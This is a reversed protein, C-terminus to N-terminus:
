GALGSQFKAAADAVDINMVSAFDASRKTLKEIVSSVKGGKGAIKTAFSSFQVALSNFDKKSLGVSKSAANSLKLIEKSSDGFVVAVANISEGLDSAEKTASKAVAALAGLALTAPIVAKKLAFQAKQGTTELNKFERIAGKIGRDDFSSLIPISVAM